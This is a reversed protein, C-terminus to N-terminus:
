MVRNLEADFLNFLPHCCFFSFKKKDFGNDKHTSIMSFGILDHFYFHKALLDRTQHLGMIVFLNVSTLTGCGLDGVKLDTM